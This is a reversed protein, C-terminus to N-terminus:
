RALPGTEKLARYAEIITEVQEPSHAASLSCRLLCYPGPSAPPAVLNVYVGHDLLFRWAALTKETDRIITGVVPSVAPGLEYGFQQLARYVREANELLRTRREPERELVRLAARASAIVSPVPSASFLYARAAARLPDLDHRRSVAYGGVCGLSKSFTGVVIDVQDEVGQLEALGRGNKGLVGFSHAEDVILAVGHHSTVECIEALPAYDGLMSYIGEAIVMASGPDDIRGLKKALDKADNHKFRFTTAGSLKAGDYISAHSEADLFIKSRADAIGAITGLNAQYGTTFVIASRAGYFEALEHELARHEPYTGNAMRSGTTGTGYRSAAQQAAAVCDPHFTLGLYNNTGALIVKRGNVIGHTADGDVTIPTGLADNDRWPLEQTAIRREILNM